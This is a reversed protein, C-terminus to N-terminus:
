EHKSGRNLMVIQTIASAWFVSATIVSIGAWHNRVIDGCKM